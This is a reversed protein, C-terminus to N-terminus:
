QVPAQKVPRSTGFHKQLARPRRDHVHENPDHQDPYEFDIAFRGNGDITYMMVAWPQKDAKRSSEWLRTVLDSLEDPLFLQHLEGGPRTRFFLAADIWGDDVEAYLLLKELTPVGAVALAAQGIQQYLAEKAPNMM